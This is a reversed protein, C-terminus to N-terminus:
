TAAQFLVLAMLISVAGVGYGFLVYLGDRTLLGFSMFAVASAGITTVFPILELFPWMLAVAMCAILTVFRLPGSTLIRLRVASRRDVWAAPRRLFAVARAMRDARVTRNRLVGPLWLHKRGVLSQSIILLIIAASITPVGPIGSLPSILVLAIVLVVPMMSRDGIQNLVDQVSVEAGDAAMDMQDLLRGLTQDEALTM